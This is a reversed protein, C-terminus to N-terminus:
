QNGIFDVLSVDMNIFDIAHELAKRYEVARIKAANKKNMDREASIAWEVEKGITHSLDGTMRSFQNPQLVNLEYILELLKNAEYKLVSASESSNISKRLQKIKELIEEKTAM